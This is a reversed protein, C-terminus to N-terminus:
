KLRFNAYGTTSCHSIVKWAPASLATCWMNHKGDKIGMTWLAKCAKCKAPIKYKKM